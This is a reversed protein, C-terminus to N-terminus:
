FICCDDNKEETSLSYLCMGYDRFYDLIDDNYHKKDKIEKLSIIKPILDNKKGVSNECVKINQQVLEILDNMFNSKEVTQKYINNCNKEVSKFDNLVLLKYKDVKKDICYYTRFCYAGLTLIPSKTIADDCRKKQFTKCLLLPNLFEYNSNVNNRLYIMFENFNKKTVEFM